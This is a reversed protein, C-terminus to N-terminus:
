VTTDISEFLGAGMAWKRFEVVEDSHTIGAVHINRYRQPVRLISTLLISIIDLFTLECIFLTSM